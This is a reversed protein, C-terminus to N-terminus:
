SSVAREYLRRWSRVISNMAHRSEARSRAAAVLAQRAPRDVCMAEVADTLGDVDRPERLRGHVGDDILERCAPIDSAVVACGAAMAEIVVNPSGETLSPFLLCDASKLWGAVRGSWLAMAIVSDLGRSHILREVRPREPGDGLLVAQVPLRRRLRDIVDVFTPLNKVPDMRGAWVVLPVDPCVGHSTKDVAPTSDIEEFSVANPIVVVRDAPFGLDAVVHRGVAFSNAVHVDSWGSTLYEVLRHWSREIEITVTSTVVPRCRDLRGVLRVALNAHFLSAHIVDPDVRRV